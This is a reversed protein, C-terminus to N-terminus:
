TPSASPISADRSAPQGSPGPPERRWLWMAWAIGGVTLVLGVWVDWPRYRFRYHHAGAPAEVALWQEAFLPVRRGDRWARWGTWSNEQVVLKGVVDSACDVDIHGGRATATCPVASGTEASGRIAAYARGEYRLIAMGDIQEVLVGGEPPKRTAEVAWQPLERNKWYWPRVMAAEKLGAGAMLPTWYHEGYPAKVWQASQPTMAELVHYDQDHLPTTRYFTRSFAGVSWLSWTLPVLLVWVVSVRLLRSEQHGDSSSLALYPWPRRLLRDLGLAALGLVLPVALSAMLSPHRVGHMFTPALVSLARFPEGSALVFLLLSGVAFFAPVRRAGAPALLLGVVALIIPTWGIYNAYLFPYPNKQLVPIMYFGLDNIVLNLPIYPLPQVSGFAADVEKGFQPWFHLVPVWYVASFLLALLGALAWGRWAPRSALGAPKNRRAFVLFAPLLGLLAALQIYGHSSVLTLALALGLWIASRKRGHLALALGPAIILSATAISIPLPIIGHGMRASLHGGAVAMGASWLRAVVGLGLVRALWWQAIGAIAMAIVLAVKTGNVPGWLLNTAAIVPHLTVSYVDAFAPSGGNAFGNWLICDGCQPLLTWMYQPVLLEGFETGTPWLRPDLNLYDRGGM